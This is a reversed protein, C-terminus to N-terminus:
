QVRREDVAKEMWRFLVNELMDEWGEERKAVVKADFLIPLARAKGGQPFTRSLPSPSAAPSAAASISNNANGLPQTPMQIPLM